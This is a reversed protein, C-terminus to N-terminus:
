WPSNAWEVLASRYKLCSHQVASVIASNYEDVSMGRDYLSQSVDRLNGGNVGGHTDFYQCISRDMQPEAHATAAGLLAVGTMLGAAIIKKM